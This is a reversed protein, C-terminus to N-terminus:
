CSHPLDPSNFCVLTGYKRSSCEFVQQEYTDKCVLRYITVEKSQGIRHCRAMAQLDNQVGCLMATLDRKKFSVFFLFLLLNMCLRSVGQIGKCAASMVRAAQQVAKDLMTAVSLGSSSCPQQQM